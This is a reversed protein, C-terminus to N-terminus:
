GPGRRAERVARYLRVCQRLVELAQTRQALSESADVAIAAQVILSRVRTIVKHSPPAPTPQPERQVPAQTM